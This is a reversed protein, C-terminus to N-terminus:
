LKFFKSFNRLKKYTDPKLLKNAKKYVKNRMRWEWANFQLKVIRAPKNLEKLLTKSETILNSFKALSDPHSGAKLGIFYLDSEAWNQYISYNSFLCEDIVLKLDRPTLNKYYEFGASVSLPAGTGFDSRSTGHETRFTSACTMVVLGGPKTMRVMNLFTSKWAPNHEFCEGSISVDFYGSSLDLEEGRAVKTVNKGPGIDVGVYEQADFQHTIDGTIDLSGVDLVKGQFLDPFNAVALAIFKQQAPHAL